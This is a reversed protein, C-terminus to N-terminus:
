LGLEQRTKEILEAFAEDLYTTANRIEEPVRREYLTRAEKIDHGLLEHFNGNRVGEEVNKRNYLAIDSVILRALRRAKANADEMAPPQPKAPAVFTKQAPPAPERPVDRQLASLQAAMSDLRSKHLSDHDTIKKLISEISGQLAGRLEDRIQRGKLSIEENYKASQEDAAHQVRNLASELKDIREMIGAMSSKISRVAFYLSIAVGLALLSILVVPLMGMM